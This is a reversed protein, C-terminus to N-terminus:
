VATLKFNRVLPLFIMFLRTKNAKKSMKKNAPQPLPVSVATGVVVGVSVATGVRVGDGVDGGVWVGPGVSVAVTVGEAVSRGVIVLLGRGGVLVGLGAVFVGAGAVAVLAGGAAVFVGAGAAGAGVTAGGVAAGVASNGVATGVNAAVSVATGGGGGGSGCGPQTLRLVAEKSSKCSIMWMPGSRACSIILRRGQDDTPCSVMILPIPGARMASIKACPKAHTHNPNIEASFYFSGPQKALSKKQECKHVNM